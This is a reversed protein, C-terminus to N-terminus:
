SRESRTVRTVRTVHTVRTVRTVRTVHTVRTVRTVRTVHTVRVPRNMEVGVQTSAAIIARPSYLWWQRKSSPCEKQSNYWNILGCTLVVVGIM